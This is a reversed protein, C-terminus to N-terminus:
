TLSEVFIDIEEKTPPKKSIFQPAWKAVMDEIEEYELRLKKFGTSMVLEKWVDMAKNLLVPDRAMQAAVAAFNCCRHKTSVSANHLQYLTLLIGSRIAMRKWEDSSMKYRRASPSTSLLIDIDKYDFIEVIKKTISDQDDVQGKFCSTKQQFTIRGFGIIFICNGM